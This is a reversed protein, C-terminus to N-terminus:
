EGADPAEGKAKRMLDKIEAIDAPTLLKPDQDLKKLLQDLKMGEDKLIKTDRVGNQIKDLSNKADQLTDKVSKEMGEQGKKLFELEKPLPKETKKDSKLVHIEDVGGDPADNAIVMPKKGNKITDYAMDEDFDKIIDGLDSYKTALFGIATKAKDANDSRADDWMSNEMGEYDTKEPKPKTGLAGITDEDMMDRLGSKMAKLATLKAAKKAPDM